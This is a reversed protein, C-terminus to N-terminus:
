SSRGSSSARGAPTVTNVESFHRGGRRPNSCTISATSFRRRYSEFRPSDALWNGLVGTRGMYDSWPRIFHDAPPLEPNLAAYRFGYFAWIIGAIVVVHGLASLAAAGLKGGRTSWSWPGIHLPAFASARIVAMAVMMPGLLVASYKAVFALGFTLASLFWFRFRRDHLHAWWATVAAVFFFVMCGDSTILAGHALFDPSFAFLTLSILGGLDGFIRRSWMFILVGTGISFLAIMARGRMLRPFHDEGTEYFFQHGVVWVNSTRWYDNGALPAFTAGELWAPLAAWRQPLIGNEPHLRYDHNEWYSFGATLHALEDWTTSSARKSGVALGFHAMLLLVAVAYVWPRRRSRSAAPVAVDATSEPATM